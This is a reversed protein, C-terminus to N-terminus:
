YQQLVAPGFKEDHGFREAFRADSNNSESEAGFENGDILAMGVGLHRRDTLAIRIREFLDAVLEADFLSEGTVLIQESIRVNVGDVDISRDGIMSLVGKGGEAGALM